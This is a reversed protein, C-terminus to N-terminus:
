IEKVDKPLSSHVWNDFKTMLPMLIKKSIGMTILGGITSAILVYLLILYYNNASTPLPLYKSLITIVPMHCIFFYLSFEGLKSFIKRNLVKETLYDHNGIAFILLASVYVDLFLEYTGRWHNGNPKVELWILIGALFVHIITLWVKAKKSVNMLRYKEYPTYLLIGLCMGWIGFALANDFLGLFLSLRDNMQLTGSLCWVSPCIIVIAPVLFGRFFDENKSLLYYLFYGGVFITSIYWLPVNWAYAIGLNGLIGTSSLGLFSLISGCFNYIWMDFGALEQKTMADATVFSSNIETLVGSAALGQIIFGILLGLFLAPWLGMIRSKFYEGAQKRPSKGENLGKKKKSVYSKMLFYGSLILFIGLINGETFLAGDYSAETRRYAVNLHGWCVALTAFVRWFDVASNRVKKTVEKKM